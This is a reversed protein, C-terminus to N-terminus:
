SWASIPAAGVEEFTQVLFELRSQLPLLRRLHRARLPGTTVTLLGFHEFGYLESCLGSAALASYGQLKQKFANPSVHGMDVEVFIPHKALFLGDPRIQTNGYDPLRRWLQQEFRWEGAARSSIALRVNTVSLAHQIFRPSSTRNEILPSIREGVVEAAKKTVVFLSQAYFPTSLRRVLGIRGLERMRTNVRTVSGFYLTKLQDRTLLHSLALDRLVTQDRRTLRM